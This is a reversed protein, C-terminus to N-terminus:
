GAAVRRAALERLPATKVKNSGTLTLDSEEVLLVRRPVKYSSLRKSVFARVQSEDLSAGAEPVVCVVVQRKYVDLHTYSVPSTACVSDLRYTPSKFLSSCISSERRRFSASVDFFSRRAASARPASSPRDNGPASRATSRM